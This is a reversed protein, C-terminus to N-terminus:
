LVLAQWLQEHRLDPVQPLRARPAPHRRERLLVLDHHVRPHPVRRRRATATGACRALDLGRSGGLRWGPRSSPRNALRRAPRVRGEGDSTECDPRCASSLRSRTPRTRALSARALSARALSARALSARAPCPSALQAGSACSGRRRAGSARRDLDRVAPVAVYRRGRWGRVRSERRKRRRRRKRM